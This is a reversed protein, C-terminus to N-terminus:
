EAAPLPNKALKFIYRTQTSFQKRELRRKKLRVANTPPLPRRKNHPPQRKSNSAHDWVPRPHRKQGPQTMEWDKIYVVGQDRLDCITKSIGGKSYGPLEDILDSITMGGHEKLLDEVQQRMSNPNKAYCGRNV